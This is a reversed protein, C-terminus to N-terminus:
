ANRKDLRRYLPRQDKEFANIIEKAVRMYDVAGTSASDYQLIPQRATFAEALRINRHIPSLAAKEFKEKISDHVERALNTRELFTPLAYARMTYEFDETLEKLVKLLRPVAEISEGRCEIPILVINAALFANITSVALNPPCDILIYDYETTLKSLAASLRKERNNKHYLDFDLQALSLNAPLIDVGMAGQVICEAIHANRLLVDYVGRGADGDKGLLWQTANAQADLDVLLLKRGAHSLAAALNVATTTKGVGGKQNAIAIVIAM